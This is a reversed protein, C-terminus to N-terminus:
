YSIGGSHMMFIGAVILLLGGYQVRTNLTEGLFYWVVLTEFVASIGDWMGNVYMVNGSKLAKVLFFIVAAHKEGGRAFFKLQTDGFVEAVSLLSITLLSM